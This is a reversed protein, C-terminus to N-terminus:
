HEQLERRAWFRIDPSLKVDGFPGKAGSEVKVTPYLEGGELFFAKM